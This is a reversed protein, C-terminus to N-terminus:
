KLEELLKNICMQYFENAPFNEHLEQRKQTLWITDTALIEQVLLNLMKKTVLIRHLKFFADLKEVLLQKPTTMTQEETDKNHIQTHTDTNIINRQNNNQKKETKKDM